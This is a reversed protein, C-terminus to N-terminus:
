FEVRLIANIPLFRNGKLLVYNETVAWVTTEVRHLRQKKTKFVLCVKSRYLNGLLLARNLDHMLLKRQFNDTVIPENSFRLGNLEEKEILNIPKM